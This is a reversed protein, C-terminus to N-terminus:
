ASPRSTMMSLPTPVDSYPVRNSISPPPKGLHCLPQRSNLHERSVEVTGKRHIAWGIVHPVICVSPNKGM